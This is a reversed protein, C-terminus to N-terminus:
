RVGVTTRFWEGMSVNMQVASTAMDYLQEEITGVLNASVNHKRM